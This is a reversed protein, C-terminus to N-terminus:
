PSQGHRFIFYDQFLETMSKDLRIQHSVSTPETDSKIEPIITVIGDHVEYFRKKDSSKLYEDTCLTLEVLYDPHGNLWEVAEDVTDFRMRALTKGKALVLKEVLVAKGKEAKIIVTYKIQGAEAFSYCLPSSSYIIPYDRGGVKQYRHLH